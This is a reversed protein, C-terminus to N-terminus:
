IENEIKKLEKSNNFPFGEMKKAVSFQKRLQMDFYVKTLYQALKPSIAKINDMIKAKETNKFSLIHKVEEAIAVSLMYTADKISIKDVIAIQKALVSIFEDYEEKFAPDTSLVDITKTTEGGGSGVAKERASYFIKLTKNKGYITSTVAFLTDYFGYNKVKEYEQSFIKRMVDTRYVAYYQCSYSLMETKPFLQYLREEITNGDIDYKIRQMYKPLFLIKKGKKEFSIYYGQCSSYDPNKELFDVCKKIADPVIFDDDACIVCYPTTIENLILRMKKEYPIDPYHYHHKKTSVITKEHSSDCIFVPIDTDNYYNVIRNLYKERNNHTPIIISVDM